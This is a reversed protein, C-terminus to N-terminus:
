ILGLYTYTEEFGWIPFIPKGPKFTQFYEIAKQIHRLANEKGGGLMKPAYYASQVAILSVRSNEPALYFAKKLMRSSKPRLTIAQFPSLGVKHWILSSLLAYGKAFDEKLEISIELHRIGDNVFKRAKGDNKESLYFNAIRKDACGIYYHILWPYTPENVLRKFFARAALM